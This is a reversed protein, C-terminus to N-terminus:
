RICAGIRVRLVPATEILGAFPLDKFRRYTPWAEIYHEYGAEDMRQLVERAAATLALGGKGDPRYELSAPPSNIYGGTRVLRAVRGDAAFVYRDTSLADESQTEVTVSEVGTMSLRVWAAEGPQVREAAVQARWAAEDFACWGGSGLAKGFYADPRGPPAPEVPPEYAPGAATAVAAACGAALGAWGGAILLRRMM